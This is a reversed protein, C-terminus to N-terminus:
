IESKLQRVLEDAIEIGEEVIAKHWDKEEPDRPHYRHAHALMGVVFDKAAQCRFNFWEDKVVLKSQRTNTDIEHESTLHYEECGCKPCKWKYMPPNSTYVISNDVLMETGCNKCKM